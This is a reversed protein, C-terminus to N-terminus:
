FVSCNEVVRTLPFRNRHCHKQGETPSKHATVACKPRPIKSLQLVANRWSRLLVGNKWANIVKKIAFALRGRWDSFWGCVCVCFCIFIHHGQLLLHPNM